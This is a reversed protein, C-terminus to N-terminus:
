FNCTKAVLQLEQMYNDISQLPEQTCTILKHRNYIVNAPKIYAADLINIAAELSDVDNILEYVNASIISWHLFSVVILELLLRRLQQRTTSVAAAAQEASAVAVPTHTVNNADAQELYNMLTIKWHRYLKEATPANPETEFRSLRM